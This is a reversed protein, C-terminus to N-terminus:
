KETFRFIFRGTVEYGSDSWKVASVPYKSDNDPPDKNETIKSFQTSAKLKNHARWSCNMRFQGWSNKALYKNAQALWAM